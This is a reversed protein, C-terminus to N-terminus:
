ALVEAAPVTWAADIGYRSAFFSWTFQHRSFRLGLTIVERREPETLSDLAAQMESISRIQDIYEYKYNSM